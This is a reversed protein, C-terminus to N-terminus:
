GHQYSVNIHRLGTGGDLSFLLWGLGLHFVVLVRFGM